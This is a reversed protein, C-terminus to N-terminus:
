DVRFHHPELGDIDLYRLGRTGPDLATPRNGGRQIIEGFSKRLSQWRRQAQAQEERTSMQSINKDAVWLIQVLSQLRNQAVSEEARALRTGLSEYQEAASELAPDAPSSTESAKRLIRALGASYKADGHFYRRELCLRPQPDLEGRSDRRCYDSRLTKWFKEYAGRMSKVVDDHHGQPDTWESRFGGDVIKTNM